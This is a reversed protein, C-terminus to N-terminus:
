EALPDVLPSAIQRAQRASTNLIAAFQPEKALGGIIVDRAAEQPDLGLQVSLTLYELAPERWNTDSKAAFACLYAADFALDTTIPGLEMARRLDEIGKVPVYGSRQTMTQRDVRARNHYAVQLRNDIQVARNLATEARELNGLRLWCWGMNNHIAATEHGKSIALECCNLADHYLRLQSMCYAMCALINGDLQSNELKRYDLIALDFQKMKQHARARGLIAPTFQPDAALAREFYNVADSWNEQRAQEMGRAYAREVPTGKPLVVTAIAVVTVLPGVTGVLTPIPHHAVWRRLRRWGSLSRRFFRALEEATPRERPNYALCREIIRAVARDVLRNHRRIPSVTGRQRELLLTRLEQSTLKLPLPGFPHVRTLLEYLIIGFSFVDSSPGVLSTEAPRDLDTAMLQEPSMYPLTGGIQRDVKQADFALNFDLLMPSGDPTMLVNSPKLDRHCINRAHIYALADAIALAIKLIGDVYTGRFFATSSTAQRDRLAHVPSDAGSPADLVDCLTASGLYPMCVCTVGTGKEKQVSLIPVIHRHDLKGLTDAEAGGHLSIKVAVIRQGVAVETAAFVRAFAGRGLERKLQFGLFEEGPGPWRVEQLRALAEPNEEILQHIEMTRRLSTQYVPFRKCFQDPDIQDGAERRQCFEEYALDLVVSKETWWDPHKALTQLADVPKGQQRWESLVSALSPAADNQNM